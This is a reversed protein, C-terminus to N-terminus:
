KPRRRMENLYLRLENLFVREHKALLELCNKNDKSYIPKHLFQKVERINLGAEGDESYTIMHVLEVLLEEYSSLKKSM